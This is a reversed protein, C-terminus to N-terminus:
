LPWHDWPGKAKTAASSKPRGTGSGQPEKSCGFKCSVLNQWNTRLLASADATDRQEAWVSTGPDGQSSVQVLAIIYTLVIYM